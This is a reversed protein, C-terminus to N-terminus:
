LHSKKAGIWPTSCFYSTRATFKDGVKMEATKLPNWYKTNKLADVSQSMGYAAAHASSPNKQKGWV